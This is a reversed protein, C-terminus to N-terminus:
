WGMTWAAWAQGATGGGRVALALGNQSAFHVSAIVDAADVVRAILAPHKDIMGNYLKRAHDYETSGPELLAGRLQSRLEKVKEPSVGVTLVSM